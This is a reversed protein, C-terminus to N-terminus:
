KQPSSDESNRKAKAARYDEFAKDIVEKSAGRHETTKHNTKKCILCAFKTRKKGHGGKDDQPNRDRRKGHGAGHGNRKGNDDANRNANRNGNPNRKNKERIYNTTKITESHFAEQLPAWEELVSFFSVVDSRADSSKTKQRMLQRLTTPRVGDLLIGVMQKRFGVHVMMNDLGHAQATDWFKMNYATVRQIADREALDMKCDKFLDKIADETYHTETQMRGELFETLDENTIATADKRLYQKSLVVLLKPDLCELQSQREVGHSTTSIVYRDYAMKFKAIKLKSLSDLFPAKIPQVLQVVQPNNNARANRAM